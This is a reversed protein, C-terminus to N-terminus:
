LLEITKKILREFKGKVMNATETVEAHSLKQASIGAALNTICSISGTEMGLSIAYIQEHVTSMGVADGGLKGMMKIEAPTEYSPGKSYWYVGEKLAIKEDLAAEKIKKYAESNEFGRIGTIGDSNPYGILGSLENKLAISNVSNILMLDGPQFNPNIGGAANTLIIKRCGFKHAIFVPLVCHSIPYGEYFHIRGQFLLVNKDKLKAFLIKGKHGAVTSVPYGPIDHTSISDEVELNEAFDGLGSGLILAACPRFNFKDKLFGTMEEYLANMNIM